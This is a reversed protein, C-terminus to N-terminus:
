IFLNFLEYLLYFACLSCLVHLAVFAWGQSDVRSHHSCTRTNELEKCAHWMYLHVRLEKCAHIYMYMTGKCAHVHISNIYSNALRRWFSSTLLIWCCFFCCFLGVREARPEPLVFPFFHINLVILIHLLGDTIGWEYGNGDCM